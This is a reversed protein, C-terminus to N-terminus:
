LKKGQIWYQNQRKTPCSLNWHSCSLQFLFISMNSFHYSCHFHLFKDNNPLTITTFENAIEFSTYLKVFISTGSQAMTFFLCYCAIVCNKHFLLLRILLFQKIPLILSPPIFIKTSLDLICAKLSVHIGLHCELACKGHTLM